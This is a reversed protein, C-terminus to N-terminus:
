ENNGSYYLLFNNTAVIAESFYNENVRYHTYKGVKCSIYIMRNSLLFSVARNYTPQSYPYNELLINFLDKPQIDPNQKVINLIEKYLPKVLLKSVATLDITNSNVHTEITSHSLYGLVIYNMEQEESTGITYNQYRFSYPKILSICFTTSNIVTQSHYLNELSEMQFDNLKFSKIMYMNQTFMKSVIEYISKLCHILKHFYTHPNSLLSCLDLKLDNDLDSNKITDLTPNSENLYFDFIYDNLFNSEILTSFFKDITSFCYLYNFAFMTLLSVKDDSDWKFFIKLDSDINTQSQIQNYYKLAELKNLKQANIKEEVINFNFYLDLYQMINFIISREIDFNMNKVMTSTINKRHTKCRNFLLVYSNDITNNCIVINSDLIHYYYQFKYINNVFNFLFSSTKSRLFSM